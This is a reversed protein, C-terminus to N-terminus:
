AAEYIPEAEDVVAQRFYRSLDAASRLDVKRGLLETLELELGAVGFLGIRKGQEFEVLLDIDSGPHNTGHLTSGFLSLRRIGNAACFQALKERDVHVTASM